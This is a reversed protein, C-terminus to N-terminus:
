LFFAPPLGGCRGASRGSWGLAFVSTELLLHARARRTGEQPRLRPIISHRLRRIPVNGESAREAQHNLGRAQEERVGRRRSGESICGLKDPSQAPPTHANRVKSPCETSVKSPCPLGPSLASSAGDVALAESVLYVLRGRPRQNREEGQPANSPCRLRDLDVRGEGTLTQPSSRTM